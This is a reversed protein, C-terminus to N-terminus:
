LDSIKATDKEFKVTLKRHRIIISASASCVGAMVVGGVYTAGRIKWLVRPTGNPYDRIIGVDRLFAV